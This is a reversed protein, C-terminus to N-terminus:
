QINENLIASTPDVNNMTVTTEYLVRTNTDTFSFLGADLVAYSKANKGGGGEGNARALVAVRISKIKRWDSVRNASVYRFLYRNPDGDIGTGSVEGYLVQLTDIGAVLPQASGDTVWTGSEPDYGQCFLTPMDNNTGDKAVWYVNAVVSAVATGTCDLNDSPDFQLAIRDSGAILNDVDAATTAKMPNVVESGNSTCWADSVVCASSPDVANSVLDRNEGLM